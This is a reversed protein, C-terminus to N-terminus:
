TRHSSHWHLATRHHIRRRAELVKTVSVEISHIPETPEVTEIIATESAVMPKMMEVVEVM